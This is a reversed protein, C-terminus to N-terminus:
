LGQSQAFHASTLISHISEKLRPWLCLLSLTRIGGQAPNTLGTRSVHIPTVCSLRGYTSFVSRNSSIATQVTITLWRTLVAINM